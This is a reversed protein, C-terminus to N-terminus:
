FWHESSTRPIVCCMFYGRSFTFADDKASCFTTSGFRLTTSGFRLPKLRPSGFFFFAPM